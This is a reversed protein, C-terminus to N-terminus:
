AKLHDEFEEGLQVALSNGSLECTVLGYQKKFSFTFGRGDALSKVSYGLKELWIKFAILNKAKVVRKM